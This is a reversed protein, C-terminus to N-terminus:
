FLHPCIILHSGGHASSGYNIESTAVNACRVASLADAERTKRCEEFAPSRIETVVIEWGGTLRELGSLDRDPKYLHNKM